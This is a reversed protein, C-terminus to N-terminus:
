TIGELVAKLKAIKSRCDEVSARPNYDAVVEAEKDFVLRLADWGFIRTLQSESELMDIIRPLEQRVEEGRAALQLLALTTYFNWFKRSTIVRLKENSSREIERFMLMTGIKDPLHGIIFGIIFGAIGGAIAGIIGFYEHGFRAGLFTCSAIACFWLFHFLTIQVPQLGTIQTRKALYKFVKDKNM